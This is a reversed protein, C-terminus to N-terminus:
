RPLQDGAVQRLSYRGRPHGFRTGAPPGIWNTANRALELARAPWWSGVPLPGGNCRGGSYGPRNIWLFADVTGSGTNTTPSPGLGRRLPHCIVNIRRRGRKYHVPGRGNQATSIVFHKGGLRRSIANGYRINDRTWAYHTVNVMFGRVKHVGIYRLRRAVLGPSKWDSATAEIYITANPLRSLVDVGHRLVNLRARRRSRALCEVTGVSDPEFAIIARSSGIGAALGEFWRKTAEDEAVGGARYRPNCQKGQHRLTAILPVAGRAEAEAISACIRRPVPTFRGFWKFRPTLAIRGMLAADSRRGARLYQLYSAFAPERSDVYWREGRLPNAAAPSIARKDGSVARRAFNCDGLRFGPPYQAEAGGPVAAM